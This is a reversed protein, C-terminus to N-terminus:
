ERKGPALREFGPRDVRLRQALGHRIKESVRQAPQDMDVPPDLVARPIHKCIPGL